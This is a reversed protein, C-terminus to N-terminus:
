AKLVDNLTKAAEQKKRDDLGIERRAIEGRLHGLMKAAAKRRQAVDVIETADEDADSWVEASVGQVDDPDRNKIAYVKAGRNQGDSSNVDKEVRTSITSNDGNRYHRFAHVVSDEDNGKQHHINTSKHGIAPYDKTAIYLENEPENTSEVEEKTLNRARKSLHDAVNEIQVQTRSSNSGGAEISM